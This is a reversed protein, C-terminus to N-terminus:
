PYFYFIPFFYFFTNVRKQREALLWTGCEFEVEYGNMFFFDVECDAKKLRRTKAARNTPMVPTESASKAAFGNDRAPAAFCTFGCCFDARPFDPSMLM